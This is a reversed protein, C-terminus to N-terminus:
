GGIAFIYDDLVNDIRDILIAEANKEIKGKRINNYQVPAYQSILSLPIDVASLNKLLKEIANQVNQNPIYYRIRDSFSYSRAIFLERDSGSYYNKWNNPVENMQTEFVQILGSTTELETNYIVSEMLALSYLAERFAFTLGPGVKLIAIGDEVMQKLKYRTQYDTSHGEFVINSNQKLSDVLEKALDRNYEIITDDGFEVGPQVVVAIINDWVETVGHKQYKEKFCELTNQLSSVKTIEVIDEQEQSGGPIPVESGIIFVPFIAKKYRQKLDEYAKLASKALIASRESIVEDTLELDGKLKMSTDIHIKTYGAYVYDYILQSANKMADSVEIDVWTLPGLHDGGLVIKDTDFGVEQSINYVYNRFDLPTMGTYGGFQNCQNATAEIVAITNHRKANLLVAKIVYENASCASYIGVNSNRNLRPLDLLVNM